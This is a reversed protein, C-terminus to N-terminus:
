SKLGFWFESQQNDSSPAAPTGGAPVEVNLVQAYGDDGSGSWALFFKTTAGSTGAIPASIATWEGQTADFEISAASTTVAWTTTNVEFVQSFGDFATGADTDPGAWTFLFHNTDIKVLSGQSYEQTDFELPTSATTVAWTTTNVTFTGVFGDASTTSERYFYIFHNSDVQEVRNNTAVQGLFQFRSSSTTVAWTTTNVTFVQAQGYSSAGGSYVLIFHNTDIKCLYNASGNQTDHELVSSATTVAWTTTNVTFTQIYGDGSVGCWACLFHNDDVKVAHSVSGLYDQTDFELPTSATTVAWTTTDVTLVQCRGDGDSDQWFVLAHNTDIGIVPTGYLTQTDFELPTSATTVAWTTTNVTFVGAFGDSGSGSWAVLFHNTDIALPKSQYQGLTTEYEFAAGATTVAWDAM